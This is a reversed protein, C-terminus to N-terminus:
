HVEHGSTDTEVAFAHVVNAITHGINAQNQLACRVLLATLVSLTEDLNLSSENMTDVVHNYIKEMETLNNDTM